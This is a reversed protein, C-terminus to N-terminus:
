TPVELQAQASPSSMVSKQQQLVLALGEDLTKASHMTGVLISGNALLDSSPEVCFQKMWPNLSHLDVPKLM